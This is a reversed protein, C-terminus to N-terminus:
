DAIELINEVWVTLKEKSLVSKLVKNALYYVTFVM